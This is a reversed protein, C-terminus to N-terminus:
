ATTIQWPPFFRTVKSNAFMITGESVVVVAEDLTDILSALLRRSADIEEERAVEDTIGVFACRHENRVRM